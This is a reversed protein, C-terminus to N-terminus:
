PCNKIKDKLSPRGYKHAIKWDVCAKAEEGLYFWCQGRNFFADAYKPNSEIAANYKEIATHYDRYNMYCNGVEYLLRAHDPVYELGKEYLEEAAKINNNYLMIKGQEYYDEAKEEAPVCSSFFLSVSVLILLYNIRRM